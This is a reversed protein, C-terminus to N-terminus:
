WLSKFYKWKPLYNLYTSLTKQHSLNNQLNFLFHQMTPLYVNYSYNSTHLSHSAIFAYVKNSNYFCSLVLNVRSESFGKRESFSLCSLTLYFFTPRYLNIFYAENHQIKWTIFLKCYQWLRESWEFLVM